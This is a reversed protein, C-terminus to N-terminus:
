SSPHNSDKLPLKVKSVNPEASEIPKYFFIRELNPSDSSRAEINSLFEGSRFINIYSGIFFSGSNNM